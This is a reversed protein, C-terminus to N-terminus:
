YSKGQLMYLEPGAVKLNGHGLWARDRARNAWLATLHVLVQEVRGWGLETKVGELWQIVEPDLLWGLPDCDWEPYSGNSSFYFDIPLPESRLLLAVFKEYLFPERLGRLGSLFGEKSKVLGTRLGDIYDNASALAIQRRSHCDLKIAEVVKGGWPSRHRARQWSAYGAAERRRMLAEWEIFPGRFRSVLRFYQERSPEVEFENLPDGEFLVEVAITPTYRWILTQKANSCRNKQPLLQWFLWGQIFDAAKAQFDLREREDAFVYGHAEQQGFADRDYIFYDHYTHSEEVLLNRGIGEIYVSSVTVRNRKDILGFDFQDQFVFPIHRRGDTYLFADYPTTTEGDRFGVRIFKEGTEFDIGCPIFQRRGFRNYSTFTITFV